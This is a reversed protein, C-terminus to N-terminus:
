LTLRDNFRRPIEIAQQQNTQRNWSCYKLLKHINLLGKSDAQGAASAEEYDELPTNRNWSPMDYLTLSCNTTESSLRTM